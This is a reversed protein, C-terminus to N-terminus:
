RRRSRDDRAFASISTYVCVTDRLFPSGHVTVPTELLKKISRTEQPRSEHEVMKLKRRGRERNERAAVVSRFNIGPTPSVDHLWKERKSCCYGDRSGSRWNWEVTLRFLRVNFRSVKLDILYDSVLIIRCIFSVCFNMFISYNFSCINGGTEEWFLREFCSRYIWGAWVVSLRNFTYAVCKYWVNEYDFEYSMRYGNWPLSTSCGTHM